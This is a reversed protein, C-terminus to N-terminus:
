NRAELISGNNDSRISLIDLHYINSWNDRSNVDGVELRPAIKRELEQEIIVAVM